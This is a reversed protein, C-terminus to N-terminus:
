VRLCIGSISLHIALPNGCIGKLALWRLSACVLLVPSFFAM